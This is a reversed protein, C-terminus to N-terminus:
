GRDERRPGSYRRLGYRWFASAASLSRRRVARGAAPRRGPGQGGSRGGPVDHHVGAAGRLDAWAFARATSTWRTAAPEFVNWFVMEMNSVRTLWFALTALVLWFSYIIVAGAALMALFM